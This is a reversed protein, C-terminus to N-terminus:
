SDTNRNKLIKKLKEIARHRIVRINGLSKRVIKAIERPELQAFYTLQIVEAEDDSLKDLAKKVDKILIDNEAEIDPKKDSTSKQDDYKLKVRDGHKRYHDILTNRAVTFIWIDLDRGQKFREINKLIKEFVKSSLDEATERHNVRVYMYRYVRGLYERYIEELNDEHVDNNKINKRDKM